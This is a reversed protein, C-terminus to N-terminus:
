GATAPQRAAGRRALQERVRALWPEPPLGYPRFKEMRGEEESAFLARHLGLKSAAPSDILNSSDAVNMQFVVRMAFERMAGRDFARQLNNLTDCWVLVHIGLAAGERLIAALQKEPSAPQEDARSSFGFDDEQRRLERMRQLGYLVLYVSPADAEPTAQRRELEATLETLVAPLERTGAVRVAGPVIEPLRALVGGRPADAQQGDILCFRSGGAHASLSLVATALMGLSAEPNQGVIVLNSGNHRRFTASTLEDIAMAEGLWAQEGDYAPEEGPPATLLKNFPENKSVDADANGEFVVMPLKRMPRQQAMERLQGLYRERKEDGLWVVQFPDNGEVLGNQDNYIAEGPRSLLRAASNEDSLILHADAESCQLAIRVAMQDITSRALSYAGGLTQSGLLIHIGFARGQRVLRDLLQAAEQAIRDDETFFEQFEDVILLVRPSREEPASQRYANLDQAGVTRFREGRVKLETDLRKLVSLGFERESEIAVVRAHPLEHVAYTKFEVGKKFDVLYLEVEEPSYILGLNTILAHLLTSKGSGTKGAVLAHQSTGKGLELLQRRTAGARGLPVSIAKSTSGSWWKEAAPAIFEFPVEVRHADRAAEGVQVLVRNVFAEEPARDMRLVFNGFDEDRWQFSGSEWVLNAGARELDALDFDRPLPQNGDVSILTSVGCRPGSQAISVLRRTAEATFNTPFNAVVLIRYPEAVEGAERNYESITKYRNRLYKQIVNEMHATLDALRQEIQVSETWIRSSVVQEDYDALNMFAAFNQGLGVPDVILFRVKGPPLATLTRFMITRISEIARDRGEDRGHFLISSPEPFACLAPLALDAPEPAPRSDAWPEAEVVSETRVQFSGFRFSGPAFDAPPKWEKWVPDEWAPFLRNCEINIKAATTFVAAMVRQWRSRAAEWERMHRTQIEDVAARHKDDRHRMKRDFQETLQAHGEQHRREATHIEDARRKDSANRRDGLRAELNATAMAQDFELQAKKQRQKSEASATDREHRMRAEAQAQDHETQYRELLHKNAAEADVLAECLPLYAEEVQRRALADLLSHGVIWGIGTVVFSAAAGLAALSAPGPQVQLFGAVLWGLPYILLAWGFLALVIQPKWLAFRPSVLARLLALQTQLREGCQELTQLPRKDAKERAVEEIEEHPQNWGRLVARAQQALSALQAMQTELRTNDERHKAHAANKAADFAADVAFFAETLSAEAAEREAELREGFERRERVAEKQLAEQEAAHRADAKERRQALEQDLAEAEKARRARLREASQAHEQEAREMESHYSQALAPEVRAREAALQALSRVLTRERQILSPDSM